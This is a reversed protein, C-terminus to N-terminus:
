QFENVFWIQVDPCYIENIVDIQQCVIFECFCIANHQFFHIINTHLLCFSMVNNECWFLIFQNIQWSFYFFEIHNYYYVDIIHDNNKFRMNM